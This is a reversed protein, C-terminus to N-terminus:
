HGFEPGLRGPQAAEGRSTLLQAPSTRIIGLGDDGAPGMVSGIPYRWLAGSSQRARTRSKWAPSFLSVMVSRCVGARGELGPVGARGEPVGARGEPVGARGEPVGARGEPPLGPVGARGEAGAVGGCIRTDSVMSGGDRGEAGAVGGGVPPPPFCILRTDSVMSGGARGELGPVGARGEAGAVGRGEAGAAGGGVPPPPFCILRTDSVM